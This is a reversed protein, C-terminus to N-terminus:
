HSYFQILNFLYHFIIAFHSRNGFCVFFDDNEEIFRKSMCIFIYANVNFNPKTDTIITCSYFPSFVQMNVGCTSYSQKKVESAPDKNRNPSKGHM